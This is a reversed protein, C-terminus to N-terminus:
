QYHEEVIIIGSGGNGGKAGSTGAGGGAGGSGVAYSYTASPSVIIADVFGGAAGGPGSYSIPVNGAAGGGGGSGTNNAANEGQNVGPTGGPGAGGLQSVGGGGGSIYVTGGSSVYLPTPNGAGGSWAMGIPGTGLSATGGTPSAGGWLGPNGGNAVLLSSGFTTNGGAAGNSSASATGSGAGGGGGGVMRVRIWKVGSPTTYTGSGSLFKTVTPQTFNTKADTVSGAALKASTVALDAIVSTVVNGNSLVYDKIQEATARYNQTLNDVFFNVTGTIASILQYDTIKKQAM